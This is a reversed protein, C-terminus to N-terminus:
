SPGEKFDGQLYYQLLYYSQFFIGYWAENVPVMTGRDIGRTVEQM